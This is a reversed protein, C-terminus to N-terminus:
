RNIFIRRACVVIGAAAIIMIIMAVAMHSNDGTQVAADNASANTNGAQANNGNAPDVAAAVEYSVTPMGFLESDGWTGDTAVPFLVAQNNTYLGEYKESGDADYTGYVGAATKPNTLKVKYTLQVPAFNSVAENIEWVFCEEYGYIPDDNEDLLQLGDKYYELEFQYEGESNIDGFGYVSTPDDKTKEGDPKTIDVAELVDGGVTLTLAEIENVFDFNYDADYGIEDVVFSGADLLYQIDNKINGFSVEEGGALYNMFSPGWLYQSGSTAGATMAYCHYGEDKAAQYVENTLYLAKDISNAHNARDDYSIYSIGEAKFDTGYSYEQVTDNSMQEKITELWEDWNEPAFNNGYKTEWNDPGAFINTKDANQQGIATPEENYMYTIGDSVFIMYKRSADVDTDNDLMAKGAILGAHTNTGSEITQKIAKEIADYETELDMFNTVNAKKNFIVVGVKVKANTNEIQTKLDDLMDLAQQELAASTSKDLVFVVDSVLQEEASPLSLTVKSEFNEDLNTAIKSKSTTWETATDDGSQAFAMSPIMAVAVMLALAVILTRRVSKRKM